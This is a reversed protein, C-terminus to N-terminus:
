DQQLWRWLESLQPSTGQTLMGVRFIKAAAWVCVLATGGSLGLGLFAQWLPAGPAITVRLLMLTPTFFPVLSAATALTGNPNTLVVPLLLMPAVALLTTPMLLSQSSKLDSCAAGVALFISGYLLLAVAQFVLGWILTSLQFSDAHGARIAVLIGGGVYILFLTYAVATAALLKALMLQFPPVSAVLIEAIRQMKEELVSQMLPGAASMVSLFTLMAVLLPFGVDRLPDEQAPEAGLAARGISAHGLEVPLTARTVREVDIGDQQMRLRHVTREIEAELWQHLKTYTPTNSYYRAAPEEQAALTPALMRADIEVFAFLEGTRVRDSLADRLTEAPARNENELPRSLVFKAGTEEGSDVRANHREAAVALASFIGQGSRDVVVCTREVDDAHREALVPILASALFLVPMLVIAVLFARTRVTALYERVVIARIKSV